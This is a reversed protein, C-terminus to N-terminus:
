FEILYRSTNRIKIWKTETRKFLFLYKKLFLLIDSNQSKNTILYCFNDSTDDMSKNFSIAEIWLRETM